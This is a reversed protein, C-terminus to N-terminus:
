EEKIKLQLEKYVDYLNLDWYEVKLKKACLWNSGKFAITPCKDDPIYLFLEQKAMDWVLAMEDLYKSYLSSVSRASKLSLVKVGDPTQGYSSSDWVCPMSISRGEEDCTSEKFADELRVDNLAEPITPEVYSDMAEQLMKKIENVDM